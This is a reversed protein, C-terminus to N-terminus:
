ARLSRSPFTQHSDRGEKTFNNFWLGDGGGGVWGGAAGRNSNKRDFEIVQNIGLRLVATM